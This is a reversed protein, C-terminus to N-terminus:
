RGSRLSADRGGDRGSTEDVIHGDRMHLTRHARAATAADHTAMVITLGLTTNLEALLDLVRQGTASDLNGTPEDAIMVAPRHIIARAIAARQLEGGSVQAPFAELRASLGVLEGLARAALGADRVSQGALLLPLAINEALSLTPLLHFFQFVFGIRLRRVSTLRDDPLRALDHGDLSIAGSTPREMAGCLHLLTSKGCGSPGMLAVFEGGAVEFSVDAVADRELGPYRKRLHSATLM